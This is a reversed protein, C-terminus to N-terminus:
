GRAGANRGPRGASGPGRRRLHRHTDGPDVAGVAHGRDRRGRSRLRLRADGCLGRFESNPRSVWQVPMRLPAKAAASHPVLQELCDLLTQGEHWPMRESRTAINEGRTAIAPICAVRLGDFTAAFALVDKEISRFAAEDCDVRDMKNVVFIIDRIGLLRIIHCHRRSQAVLGKAADVVLVAVDSVSAGSAMNRTYQEHGPTDAVIFTRKETAFYRYAVDITIGQEREAILGDVLLAYDRKGDTSGFMRSAADM